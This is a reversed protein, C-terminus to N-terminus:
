VEEEEDEGDGDEPTQACGEALLDDEHREEGEGAEGHEHAHDPDDLDRSEILLIDRPVEDVLSDPGDELRGHSDDASAYGTEPGEGAHSCARKGRKGVGGPM